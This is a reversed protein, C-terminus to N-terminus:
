NKCRGCITHNASNVIFPKDCKKCLDIYFKEVNGKIMKALGEDEVICWVLVRGSKRKLTHVELRNKM